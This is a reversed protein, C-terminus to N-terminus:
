RRDRVLPMGVIWASPPGLLAVALVRSREEASTWEAVAAVAASYSLGVGSGVLIQALALVAFDPAAASAASGLALLVLGAGLLERLGVRTALLGACLATAGATLGSVTRLQGALATSVDFDSAVSELVPTLALVASQSAALSLFLTAGIVRRSGM